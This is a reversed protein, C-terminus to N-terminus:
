TKILKGTIKLQDECKHTLKFKKSPTLSFLKRSAPIKNPFECSTLDLETDFIQDTTTNHRKEPLNLEPKKAGEHSTSEQILSKPITNFFDTIRLPKVTKVKNSSLKKSLIRPPSCSFPAQFSVQRLPTLVNRDRNTQPLSSQRNITELDKRIRNEQDFHQHPLKRESHHSHIPRTYFNPVTQSDQRQWVFRPDLSKSHNRTIEGPEIVEDEASHISRVDFNWLRQFRDAESQLMDELMVKTKNIDSSGFLQRVASAFKEPPALKLSAKSTM